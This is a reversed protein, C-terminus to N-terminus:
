KKFRLVASDPRRLIKKFWEAADKLVHTNWSKFNGLHGFLLHCNLAHRGECLTVLNDPALELQPFLHYPKIHHVNLKKDGGCVSCSPQVQLHAKRVKPWEASRMPASVPVRGTLKEYAHHIYHHLPRM